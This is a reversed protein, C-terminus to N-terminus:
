NFIVEFSIENATAAIPVAFFEFVEGNALRARRMGQVRNDANAPAALYCNFPQVRLAHEHRREVKVVRWAEDGGTKLITLAQGVLAELNEASPMENDKSM